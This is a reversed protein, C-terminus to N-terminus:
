SKHIQLFFLVQFTLTISEQRSTIDRYEQISVRKGNVKEITWGIQVGQGYAQSNEFVDKVEMNEM